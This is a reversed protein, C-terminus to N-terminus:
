QPIEESDEAEDDDSPLPCEVPCDLPSWVAGSGSPLGEVPDGVYKASGSKVFVALISEGEPCAFVGEYATELFAASEAEPDDLDDHKFFYSTEDGNDCQVVVNSLEKSSCVRTSASDELCVAFDAVSNVNPESTATAPVALILGALAAGFLNQQFDKRYQTM